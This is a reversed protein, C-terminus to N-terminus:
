KNNKNEVRISPIYMDLIAYVSTSLLVIQLVEVSTMECTPVYKILLFISTLHVLYKVFRKYTEASSDIDFDIKFPM